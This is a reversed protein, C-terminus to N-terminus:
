PVINETDSSKEIFPQGAKYLQLRSRIEEALDKQGAEKALSLARTATKRSAELDIYRNNRSDCNLSDVLSVPDPEPSSIEEKSKSKM